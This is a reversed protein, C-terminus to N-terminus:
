VAMFPLARGVATLSAGNSSKGIHNYYWGTYLQICRNYNIIEIVIDKLWQLLLIIESNVNRRKSSVVTGYVKM